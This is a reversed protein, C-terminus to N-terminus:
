DALPALVVILLVLLPVAVFAPLCLLVDAFRRKLAVDRSFAAVATGAVALVVAAGVLGYWVAGFATSWDAVGRAVLMNGAVSLCAVSAGVLRVDNM